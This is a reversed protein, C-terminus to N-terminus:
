KPESTAGSKMNEGGASATPSQSADSNLLKLLDEKLAHVGWPITEEVSSAAEDCADIKECLARAAEELPARYAALAEAIIPVIVDEPIIPAKNDFNDRLVHNTQFQWDVLKKAAERAKEVATVSSKM